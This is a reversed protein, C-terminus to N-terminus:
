PLTRTSAACPLPARLTIRTRTGGCGADTGCQGYAICVDTGSVAYPARLSMAPDSAYACARLTIRAPGYAYTDLRLIM